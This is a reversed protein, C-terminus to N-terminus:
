EGTAGSRIIDSANLCTKSAIMKNGLGYGSLWASEVRPGSLWDGCMGIGLADDYLFDPGNTVEVRAYRWRHAVKFIAPPRNDSFEMLAQLLQASIVEPNAELHQQSWDARAHVVYTPPGIREPKSGNYAIFDIIPHDILRAGDFGVGLPAEFAYMGAWCPLSEIAHAQAALDPATEEFLPAVQEAPVGCV